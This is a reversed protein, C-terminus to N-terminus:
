SPLASPILDSYLCKSNETRGRHHVLNKSLIGKEYFRENALIPRKLNRLLWHKGGLYPLALLLNFPSLTADLKNM